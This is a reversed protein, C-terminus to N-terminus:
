LRLYRRTALLSSIVGIIAGLVIMALLVFGAYYTTFEITPNIVVQYSNLTDKAAYLLGVGM